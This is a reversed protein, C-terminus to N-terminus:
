IKYNMWFKFELFFTLSLYFSHEQNWIDKINPDIDKHKLLLEVIERDGRDVAM